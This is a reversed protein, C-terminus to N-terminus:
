DRLSYARAANEGLIADRESASLGSLLSDTTEMWHEYSSALLCVPWDSGWILRDPGFCSLLHDVYPKLDETTWDANAETVLGSLKCYAQTDRALAAMNEAWPQILGDRILPKSGHNIVVRMDPHRQLLQILNPLHPPLTLADFTLGQAILAQFAPTLDPRLMWDPDAIDQIMPRLGVLAAHEALESIQQAAGPHEFDVWGVVGKIFSHDDALSLMFRTEAVSPAAQVLITAAIQHRELEPALDAPLFDRYLTELEPTLWGYDDRAVSWFHQHADIRSM